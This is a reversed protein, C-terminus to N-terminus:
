LLTSASILWFKFYMRLVYVPQSETLVDKNQEKTKTGNHVETILAKQFALNILPQKARGRTRPILAIWVVQYTEQDRRCGCQNISICDFKEMVAVKPVSSSPRVTIPFHPHLISLVYGPQSDTLFM